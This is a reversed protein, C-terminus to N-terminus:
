DLYRGLCLKFEPCRSSKSVADSVCDVVVSVKYKTYIAGVSDETSCQTIVQMIEGFLCKFPLMGVAAAGCGMVVVVAVWWFVHYLPIHHGLRHFFVLFNMKIVWIGIISILLMIGDGRLARTMRDLFDAGPLVVGNQVRTMLYIDGLYVQGLSALAFQMVLALLMMYDSVHLHRMYIIRIYSRLIFATTSLGVGLWLVVQRTDAVNTAM